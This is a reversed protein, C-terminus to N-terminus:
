EDCGLYVGIKRLSIDGVDATKEGLSNLLSLVFDAREHRFEATHVVVLVHQVLDDPEGPLVDDDLVGVVRQDDFHGGQLVDSHLNIEDITLVEEFSLGLIVVRIAVEIGVVVGARNEVRLADDLGDPLEAPVGVDDMAVAPNGGEHRQEHLGDVLVIRQQLACLDDEGNEWIFERVFERGVEGFFQFLGVNGGRSELMEAFGAVVLDDLGGDTLIKSGLLFLSLCRSFYSHVVEM